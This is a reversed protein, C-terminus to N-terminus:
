RVGRLVAQGRQAGVVGAWPLSRSCLEPAAQVELTLAGGQEWRPSRIVEPLRVYRRFQPSPLLLRPGLTEGPLALLLPFVRREGFREEQFM